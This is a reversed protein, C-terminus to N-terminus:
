KSIRRESGSFDYEVHVKFYPRDLRYESRWEPQRDWDKQIFRAGKKTAKCEERFQGETVAPSFQQLMRESSLFKDINSPTIEGIWFLGLTTNKYQPIGNRDYPVQVFVRYIEEFQSVALSLDFGDAKVTFNNRTTFSSTDDWYTLKKSLVTFMIGNPLPNHQSEPEPGLKKQLANWQEDVTERSQLNSGM